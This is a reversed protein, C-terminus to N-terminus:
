WYPTWDRHLRVLAELYFYDGWICCEDVGANHPKSYVAHRLLGEEGPGTTYNEILSGLILHAAAEYRDRLLGARLHRLSELLGCVAIAAASSDRPETGATFVLDWYCVQDTPLRALFYDTVREFPAMLSTEPVYRASLPIGYIAWAQGRAWCSLDSFGQYTVGNVPAGSDPDFYFTHFTSADPRIVHRLTTHLHAEAATRYRSEGTADSAWYLLPLNMLCDVILRHASRDDIAGWAQIFQGKPKYRTLMLEAARIAVDRAAPDGTLKHAAVCSLSYLFGLDHHDVWLKKNLRENLLPVYSLGERKFREDGTAEFALWLLGPWFGSTWANGDVINDQTYFAYRGSVSASSPFGGRWRTLNSRVKAVARALAADLTKADIRTSASSKLDRSPITRSPSSM